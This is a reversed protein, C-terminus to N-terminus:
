PFRTIMARATEGAAAAGSTHSFSSGSTPTYSTMFAVAPPAVFILQITVSYQNTPLPPDIPVNTLVADLSIDVQFFRRDITGQDVGVGGASYFTAQTDMANLDIKEDIGITQSVGGRFSLVQRIASGPLIYFPSFDDINSQDFNLDHSVTDTPDYITFAEDFQGRCRVIAIDTGGFNSPEIFLTTGSTTKDIVVNPTGNLSLDILNCSKFYFPQAGGLPGVATPDFNFFWIGAFQENNLAYGAGVQGLQINGNYQNNLLCVRGARDVLLADAGNGNLFCNEIWLGEHDELFTNAPSGPNNSVIVAASVGDGSLNLNRLILARVFPASAVTPQLFIASGAPGSVINVGNSGLSASGQITLSPRPVPATPINIGTYDGNELFIVMPQGLDDQLARDINRYPREITGDGTFDNGDAACYKLRSPPPAARSSVRTGSFNVLMTPRGTGVTYQEVLASGPIGAVTNDGWSSFDDANIVTFGTDQLDVIPSGPPCPLLQSSYNLAFVLPGTNLDTLYVIAPGTGTNVMSSGTKLLVVYPSTYLLVPAGNPQLEVQTFELNSLNTVQATSLVQLVPQPLRKGFAGWVIRTADRVGAIQAPAISTDLEVQVVGGTADVIAWVQAETTVVGNGPTGGPRWVISAAINVINTNNNIITRLESIQKQLCCIKKACDGNGCSM